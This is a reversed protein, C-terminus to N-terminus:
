LGHLTTTSCCHADNRNRHVWELANYLFDHMMQRNHLQDLLSDLKRSFPVCLHSSCAANSAHIISKDINILCMMLGIYRWLFNNPPQLSFTAHLRDSSALAHLKIKISTDSRHTDILRYGLRSSFNDPKIVYEPALSSVEFLARPPPENAAIAWSTPHPGTLLGSRTRIQTLQLLTL